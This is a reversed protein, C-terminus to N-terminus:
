ALLLEIKKTLTPAFPISMLEKYDRSYTLRKVMDLEESSFSISGPPAHVRCFCEGETIFGGQLSKGCISCGEGIELHGEHRLLKLQFSQVLVEPNEFAPIHALYGELLSYLLPAPKYPLQTRRLVQVISSGARLSSLRNRLKLNQSVITIDRCSYLEGKGEAAMVEVCTLPDTAGPTARKVTARYIMAAILGLELTFLTVIRDHEKFPISHLIIGKLRQM